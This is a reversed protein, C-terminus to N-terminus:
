HHEKCVPCDCPKNLINDLVLSIEQSREGIIKDAIRERVDECSLNSDSMEELVGTIIKRLPKSEM